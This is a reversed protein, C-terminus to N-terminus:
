DTAAKRLKEFRAVAPNFELLLARVAQSSELQLAQRALSNCSNISLTRLLAKHQPVLGPVVSLERVGLGLLLPVAALDSAVGGCITVPCEQERASSICSAMLRLVAPHLADVRPALAAHGRDMALTYQTLDNTGISIFDVHAAIEAALLAAAPTEIMAGLAIPSSRGIERSVEELLARTATIEAVDTIMPLLVKCQKAPEVRLIARLQTRLLEQQWLSTRIGRLGLAPNEEAPLPLYPIPKDGGNDLTRIVLPLGALTAAISQYLQLQEVEEPATARELFLFETRLLGCGEAGQEVATVADAQSGLNAYVCIRTGDNTYCDQHATSHEIARRQRSRTVFHEAAAREALGPAIHLVGQEADLMLWTANKVKSLEPGLAVLVPIGASAALIAVHSTAGGAAMCIGALRRTDLAIFQSPKLDYAIVIAQEPLACAAASTAAAPHLAHLVQSEVDLLDTVREALREDGLNLLLDASDRVARRWAYAASKGAAISRRAVAVLEWDDIFELHASIVSRAVSDASSALLRLQARVQDRARELAAGEVEAGRGAEAVVIETQELCVAHGIAFGRSAVLGTLRHAGGVDSAALEKHAVTAKAVAPRVPSDAQSVGSHRLREGIADVAAQADSGVAQLQVQDAKRLGLSMWGVASRANATRGHASASIEAAFAKAAAAILAAPRAHVGHEHGVEVLLQVVEAAELDSAASCGQRELEMLTGGAELMAHQARRAISFEEGNTVVVPTLLSRGRAALLDPDFSILPQGARVADGVKVHATFGEGQLTVTDVGVHILIEAGEPSRVVVAHKSAPVSVIEGDCPARVINSIPDILVGDGLMRGAFVADPTEELPACWGQLPSQLVLQAIAQSM